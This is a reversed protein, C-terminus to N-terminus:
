PFTPIPYVGPPVVGAAATRIGFDGGDVILDTGQVEGTFVLEVIFPDVLTASAVTEDGAAGARYLTPTNSIFVRHRFTLRITDAAEASANLIVADATTRSKSPDMASRSRGAVYTGRSTM